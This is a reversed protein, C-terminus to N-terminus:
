GAVSMTATSRPRASLWLMPPEDVSRPPVRFTACFGRADRLVELPRAGSEGPEFLAPRPEDLYRRWIV